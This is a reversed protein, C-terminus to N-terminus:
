RKLAIFYNFQSSTTPPASSWFKGNLGDQWNKGAFGEYRSGRSDARFWAYRARGEMARLCFVRNAESVCIARFCAEYRAGRSRPASDVAACLGLLGTAFALWWRPASDQAKLEFFHLSVRLLFSFLSQGHLPM